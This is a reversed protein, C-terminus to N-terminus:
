EGPARGSGASRRVICEVLQYGVRDLDDRRCAMVAFAEVQDAV